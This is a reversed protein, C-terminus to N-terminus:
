IRKMKGYIMGVASSEGATAKDENVKGFPSIVADVNDSLDLRDTFYIM